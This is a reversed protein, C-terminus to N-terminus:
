SAQCGRLLRHLRTSILDHLCQELFEAMRPHIHTHFSRTGPPKFQIFAAFAVDQTRGEELKPLGADLLQQPAVHGFLEILARGPWDM